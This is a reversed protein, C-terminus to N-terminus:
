LWSKHQRSILRYTKNQLWCNCFLKRIRSQRLSRDSRDSKIVSFNPVVRGFVDVMWKSDNWFSNTKCQLMTLLISTEGTQRNAQRDADSGWDFDASYGWDVFKAALMNIKSTEGAKRDVQRRWDFFRKTQKKISKNADNWEIKQKAAFRYMKCDAFLNKVNRKNTWVNTRWNADILNWKLWYKLRCEANRM